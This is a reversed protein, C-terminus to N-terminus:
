MNQRLKKKLTELFDRFLLFSSFSSRWNHKLTPQDLLIESHLLRRHKKLCHSIDGRPAFVECICPKSNPWFFELNKTSKSQINQNKVLRMICPKRSVRNKLFWFGRLELGQQLHKYYHKPYIVKYIAKATVFCHINTANQLKKGHLRVTKWLPLCCFLPPLCHFLELAPCWFIKEYKLRIKIYFYWGFICCFMRNCDPTIVGFM